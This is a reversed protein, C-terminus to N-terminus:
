ARGCLMGANPKIQLAEDQAADEIDSIDLGRRNIVARLEPEKLKKVADELKCAQDFAASSEDPEHRQYRGEAHRLICQAGCVKM